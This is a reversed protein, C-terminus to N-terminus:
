VCAVSVCLDTCRRSVCCVAMKSSGTHDSHCCACQSWQLRSEDLTSLMSWIFYIKDQGASVSSARQLCVQKISSAPESQDTFTGNTLVLRTEVSIPSVTDFHIGSTKKKHSIVCSTRMAKTRPSSQLESSIPPAIQASLLTRHPIRKHTKRQLWKM